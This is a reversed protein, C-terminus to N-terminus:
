KYLRIYCVSIAFILKSYTLKALSRTFTALYKAFTAVPNFSKSINLLCIWPNLLRLRHNLLGLSPNLLRQRHNIFTALSKTFMASSFLWANLFRLWLTASSETFM